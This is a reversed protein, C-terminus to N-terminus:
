GCLQGVFGADFGVIKDDGIAVDAPPDCVEVSFRHAVHVYDEIGRIRIGWAPPSLEVRLDNTAVAAVTEGANRGSVIQDGCVIKALNWCGKDARKNCRRCFNWGAM